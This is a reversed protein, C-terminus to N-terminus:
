PTVERAGTTLLVKGTTRREALAALALPLEALALSAGIHPQIAGSRALATLQRAVRALMVADRQHNWYVGIASARKLLLRNAPIQPIEGSSFGVILLRGDHALARLAEATARGGVPDVIVDAGHGNTLAKATESWGEARYDVTDHAGHARALACKDGGAAAGIVHAGLHRAIEVAALGVGGAAALVLVV